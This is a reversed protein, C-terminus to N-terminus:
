PKINLLEQIIIEESIKYTNNYIGTLTIKGMLASQQITDLKNAEPISSLKSILSSQKQEFYNYLNIPILPILTHENPKLHINGSNDTNQLNSIIEPFNSYLETFETNIEWKITHATRKGINLLKISYYNDHTFISYVLRAREDEERKLDEKKWRKNNCYITAFTAFTMLTTAISSIISWLNFEM